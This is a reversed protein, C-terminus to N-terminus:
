RFDLPAACGEGFVGGPVGMAEITLSAEVGSAYVAKKGGGRDRTYEVVRRDPWAFQVGAAIEGAGLLKGEGVRPVVVSVIRTHALDLRDGYARGVYSDIAVFPSAAM